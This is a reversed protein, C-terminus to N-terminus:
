TPSNFEMHDGCLIATVTLVHISKLNLGELSLYLWQLQTHHGNVINNDTMSYQFYKQNSDNAKSYDAISLQKTTKEYAPPLSFDILGLL